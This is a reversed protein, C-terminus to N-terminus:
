VEKDAPIVTPQESLMYLTTQVGDKFDETLEEECMGGALRLREDFADADILRGHDPIVEYEECRMDIVRGTHTIMILRAEEEATPLEIGKILIDAM